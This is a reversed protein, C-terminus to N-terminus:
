FVRALILSLCSTKSAGLLSILVMLSDLSSPVNELRSYRIYVSLSNTGSTFSRSAATSSIAELLNLPPLPLCLVMSAALVAALLCKSSRSDLDALTRLAFPLCVPALCSYSAGSLFRCPTPSASFAHSPSIVSVPSLIRPVRVRTPLSTARLCVSLFM